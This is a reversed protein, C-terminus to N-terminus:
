EAADRIRGPTFTGIPPPDRFLGWAAIEGESPAESGGKRSPVWGFLRAADALFEAYKFSAQLADIVPVGLTRQMMQNFGYEATCGLILVEAGDEEVCRRGVTLLREQTVASNQFDHVGLGLPRMSALAHGHGYLRINERMKPIWKPRGVLVSFANGLNTAIATASQCPATVIAKGSVERCERLGVDYFCGIVIGDYDSARAHVIRVLDGVVLGEYAHFEVHQPRDPPLSVIDVTTGAGAARNLIDSRERNYGDFGTPTVYLIRM